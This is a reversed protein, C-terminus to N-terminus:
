CHGSYHVFHRYGNQPGPHPTKQWRWAVLGPHHLGVPSFWESFRYEPLLGSRARVPNGSVSM